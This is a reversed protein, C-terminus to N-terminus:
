LITVLLGPIQNLVEFKYHHVEEQFDVTGTSVFVGTVRHLGESEASGVTALKLWM